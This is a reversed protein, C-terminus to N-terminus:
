YISYDEPNVETDVTRKRKVGVSMIDVEFKRCKKSAEVEKKKKTCLMTGDDKTDSYVCIACCPTQEDKNLKILSRL